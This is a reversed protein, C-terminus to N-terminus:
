ARASPPFTPIGIWCVKQASRKPISTSRNPIGHITFQSPLTFYSYRVLAPPCSSPRTRGSTPRCAPASPRRRVGNRPSPFTGRSPSAPPDSGATHTASGAAPEPLQDLAGVIAALRPLRHAVLEDVLAVGARVLPVVARRVRPLELSDPMQFGRQGIRVRDVGPHFIGGQEAGGIASLRPLFEGSQAAVAGPERQCGPAPPMHRCVM